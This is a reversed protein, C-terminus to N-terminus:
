LGRFQPVAFLRHMFGFPDENSQKHIQSIKNKAASIKEDFNAEAQRLIHAFQLTLKNSDILVNAGYAIMSGILVVAILPGITVMTATGVAMSVLGAAIATSSLAISADVAVGAVFYHWTKEEDLLQEISHFAASVILSIIFGGKISNMAGLKGVGLQIVKPNNALYRTGTLHQRLAPYGKFIIHAKGSYTKVQYKSFMSGSRQMEAALVSLAKVDLAVPIYSSLGKFSNRKEQWHQNLRADNVQLVVWDMAQLDTLGQLKKVSLVLEIFEQSNMQIFTHQNAALLDAIQYQRQLEKATLSGQSLHNNAM